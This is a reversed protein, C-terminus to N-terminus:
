VKKQFEDLEQQEAVRQAQESKVQREQEAALRRRVLLVHANGASAALSAPMNTLSGFRQMVDGFVRELLTPHSAFAALAHVYHSTFFRMNNINRAHRTAADDLVFAAEYLQLARPLDGGNVAARLMRSYRAVFDDGPAVNMRQWTREADTVTQAANPGCCYVHLLSQFLAKNPVTKWEREARAILREAEAPNGCRCHFAVLPSLVQASVSGGNRGLLDCAVDPQGQRCYMSVLSCLTYDDATVRALKMRMVLADVSAVDDRRVAAHILVNYMVRDPETGMRAMLRLVDSMHQPAEDSESAAWGTSQTSVQRKYVDGLGRSM